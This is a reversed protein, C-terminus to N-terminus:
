IVRHGLGVVMENLHLLGVGFFLAVSVHDGSRAIALKGGVNLGIAKNVIQTVAEKAAGAVAGEEVHSDQIIGERKAAVIAREIIKTVSNIFEGGFDVGATYIGQSSFEAQLSKEEERNASIAVRLAASAVERSGLGASEM